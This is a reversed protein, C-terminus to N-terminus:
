IIKYGSMIIKQFIGFNKQFSLLQFAANAKKFEKIENKFDKLNLKITKLEINIKLTKIKLKELL